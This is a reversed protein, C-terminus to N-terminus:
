SHPDRGPPKVGDSDGPLHVGDSQDVAQAAKLAARGPRPLRNSIEIGAPQPALHQNGVVISLQKGARKGLHHGAVVVDGRSVHQSRQVRGRSIVHHTPKRVPQARPDVRPAPVQRATLSLADPERARHQSVRRYQQGHLGGRGDIGSGLRGHDVPQPLVAAAPGGQHRRGGRQHQLRGVLDMQEDATPHRGASGM